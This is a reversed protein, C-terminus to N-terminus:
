SEHGKNDPQCQGTFTYKLEHEVHICKGYLLMYEPPCTFAAGTGPTTPDRLSSLDNSVDLEYEKVYCCGSGCGDAALCSGEVVSAKTYTTEDIFSCEITCFLREDFIHESNLCEYGELCVEWEEECPAYLGEPNGDESGCSLPVVAALLLCILLRRM